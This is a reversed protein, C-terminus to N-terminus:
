SRTPVPDACVFPHEGDVSSILRPRTSSAIGSSSDFLRQLLRFWPMPIRASFRLRDKFRDVAVVSQRAVIIVMTSDLLTLSM